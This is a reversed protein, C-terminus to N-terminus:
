EINVAKHLSGHLQITAKRLGEKGESWYFECVSDPISEIIEYWTPFDAAGPIEYANPDILYGDEDTTNMPDVSYAGMFDENGFVWYMGKYLASYCMVGGGTNWYSVNALDPLEAWVRGHRRCSDPLIFPDVKQVDTLKYLWKVKTDEQWDYRSGPAICADKLYRKWCHPAYVAIRSTIVASARVIPKGRGTEAILIREGLLRGLTNRTRTEYLKDGSLIQDVFPQEKCNIFVVPIM